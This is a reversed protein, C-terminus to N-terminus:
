LHKTQRLENRRKHITEAAELDHKARKHQGARFAAQEALLPDTRTLITKYHRPIGGKRGNTTAIYGHALDNKYRELWRAGIAPKLSCTLFPAPRLEGNADPEERHAIKKLTYQAVYNASAPTFAALRHAGLPWLKNVLHSEYLDKGVRYTDTFACNFLILHYHPRQTHEGYEGAALYRITGGNTRLTAIAPALRDNARRLRKLFKQLHDKRLHGNEPAHDNDYTLTLFSNHPWESAEHEARRAWLTARDTRCGLCTGCPLTINATGVPPWLRVPEGTKDQHAPIPHYCPM